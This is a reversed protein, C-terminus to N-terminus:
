ADRRPPPPLLTTNLISCRLASCRLLILVYVAISYGNAIGHTVGHLVLLWGLWTIGSSFAGRTREVGGGSWLEAGGGGAWAGGEFVRDAGEVRAEPARLEDRLGGECGWWGLGRWLGGWLSRGLGM